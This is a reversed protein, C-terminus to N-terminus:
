AAGIEYLCKLICGAYMPRWLVMYSSSVPGFEGKGALCNVRGLYRIHPVHELGYVRAIHGGSVTQVFVYNWGFLKWMLYRM